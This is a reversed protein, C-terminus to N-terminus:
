GNSENHPRNKKWARYQEKFFVKNASENDSSAESEPNAPGKHADPVKYGMICCDQDILM